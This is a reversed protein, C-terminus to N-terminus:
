RIGIAQKIASQCSGFGQRYGLRFAEEAIWRLQDKVAEGQNISEVTFRPRLEFGNVYLVCWFRDDDGSINAEVRASEGSM